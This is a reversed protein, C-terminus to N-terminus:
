YFRGSYLRNFTIKDKENAIEEFFPHEVLCYKCTKNDEIHHIFILEPPIENYYKSLIEKAKKETNCEFTLYLELEDNGKLKFIKIIIM